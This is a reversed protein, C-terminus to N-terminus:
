FEATLLILRETDITAMNGGTAGTFGDLAIRGGSITLNSAIISSGSGNRVTVGAEHAAPTSTLLTATPAARKEQWQGGVNVVTSGLWVGTFGSGLVEAFRKCMTLSIATPIAHFPLLVSSRLLQIETIYVHKSSADLAGSPTQIRVMVGNNVNTFGSIDVTHSVTTFAGNSCSQLAQTLRNTTASFNDEADATEILLTPTFASGTENYIAASITITGKIAPVATAEICQGAIIVTTASTAGTIKLSGKTGGNNLVDPNATVTAGTPTTFWRDKLYTRTAVPCSIPAGAYRQQIDMDGNIFHNQLFRLAPLRAADLTGSSINDANTADVNPVNGLGVDAANVEHPNDTDLIHAAAAAVDGNASVASAFDSITSAAQTGTHNARATADVNPVNGLGVDAANVEHPNDTDLIHAAAAAVDGNASVASAFDSITNATQTGTHTARARADVDPVNGLGVQTKTVAHPNNTLGRHTTNAAVAANAAVASAFDSLAAATIQGGGEADLHDHQANAFSTITPTGPIEGGVPGQEGQPGRLGAIRIVRTAPEIIKIVDTM